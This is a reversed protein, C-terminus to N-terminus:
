WPTYRAEMLSLLGIGVFGLGVLCFPKFWDIVESFTREMEVPKMADIRRFVHNLALQDQPSFTAGGTITAVAAMEPPAAGGGIYIGFMTINDAALERAVIEEQGGTFDASDGDSVLIVMRDGAEREILIDRCKRLALGIMTGGGYGSPLPHAPNLLPTSCRFASADTTLPIWENAKTGFVTLGYADGPRQEIFRNIAEMAAEYRNGSGFAAQMSGSLDLCFEINTLKRVDKPIGLMRPEALVFIATALLLPAVSYMVNLLGAWFWGSRQLGYDQPLVIRGGRRRWVWVLMAAPVFLGILYHWHGFTM